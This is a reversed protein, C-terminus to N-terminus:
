PATTGNWVVSGRARWDISADVPQAPGVVAGPSLTAGGTGALQVSYLHGDARDAFYLTSGSAFLGAVRSPQMAAVDGDVSNRVAGVVRSQPTFARWYLTDDGFLTYYIRGNTYAMGTINPIDAVFTSGYLPISTQTGFTSGNFSQARFTGDNWGSYLTGDVLFSGRDQSWPTTLPLTAPNTPPNTGDFHVRRALDASGLGGTGPTVDNDIIEIGNVLPNEVQHLFTVDVSGDSTTSFAKMTGVDTGPNASLDVNAAVTSGDLQISFVRQGPASTGSYRNALYLRVTVHTGAPVPFSWQMETDDAPDWRESDFLAMPARDLTTAPITGDSTASPSWGAANSGSNRYPSPDSQDGAWDPGDDVSQLAPGGANVRYLVSPDSSTTPSGLLFVDEPLTGTTNRPLSIGGALPFFALRAHQQGGIRTTDDGIWLGTTTALMDFVGVGRARGPNWSLPLGNTPDLAAIGERPVGGPGQADGAYPNNAWRFHGGVYVATGTVAVAYTTDGGTVNKWVPQQDPNDNTLNWRVQTDCPSDPGGYAGTDTVVAYTGDPSIDLDRMYTDFVAACGPAYFSTSWTSLVSTAGSTDLLFLLSRPQGDVTQFNGLGLIRNGNPTADIKNVTLKGGNLPGAFTHALFGTLAGTVPNLSAMQGRVVTGIKTFDGTVVLQNRVLRMDRISGGGVTPVAFGTVRAGTAVTLRAVKSVATGGISTFKGGVFVSTGDGSPIVATVEGNMSPAFTTSIAGTTADFAAVRNRTLVPSGPAPSQVSTFTGGIVIQNGVQAIAEVKGNLVNPTWSAPTASVVSSQATQVAGAPATIGTGVLAVTAGVAAVALLRRTNM